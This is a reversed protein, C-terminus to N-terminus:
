GELKPLFLVPPPSSLTPAAVGATPPLLLYSPLSSVAHLGMCHEASLCQAVTQVLNRYALNGYIEDWKILPELYPLCKHVREFYADPLVINMMGETMMGKSPFKVLSKCIAQEMLYEGTLHCTLGAGLADSSLDAAAGVKYSTAAGIPGGTLVGILGGSVTSGLGEFCTVVLRYVLNYAFSDM